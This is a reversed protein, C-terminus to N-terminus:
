FSVPRSLMATLLKVSNKLDDYDVMESASHIYRCPISLAGAMVGARTVQIARADTSGVLLVERQYPLKAKEATSAMWEVVRLDALMGPDRVKVCPGKGLEMSMKLSAPTDGTGTVDIAIGIEPDISFAATGAGRTGVEEQTTFVFYLDHPTAKISKLTEILVVVGARDDMSKAVLRNGMEMYSREFAGFDGVKVPCNSRSTAGVDIYMKSLSPAQDVSELKDFGVVGTVGNMFRIRAGLTYRGFVGGNSAFRVYGNKDVHSVIVGIEDMHAALMIRKSNKVAATPKKRVILSGMADVRIEDAYPKVEKQIIKRVADEYGSPAFTETLTKLLSKM